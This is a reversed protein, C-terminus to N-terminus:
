QFLQSAFNQGVRYICYVITCQYSVDVTNKFKLMIQCHRHILIQAFIKYFSEMYIRCPMIKLDKQEFNQQQQEKQNITKFIIVFFKCFNSIWLKKLSHPTLRDPSCTSPPLWTFTTSWNDYTSHITQKSQTFVKLLMQVQISKFRSSKVKVWSSKKNLVQYKVELLKEDTVFSKSSQLKRTNKVGSSIRCWVYHKFLNFSGILSNGERYM